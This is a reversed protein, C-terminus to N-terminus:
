ILAAIQAGGMEAPRHIGSWSLLRSPLYLLFCGLFFSAYIVTRFFALMDVEKYSTLRHRRFHLLLPLRSYFFRLATELFAGSKISQLGPCRRGCRDPADQPLRREDM